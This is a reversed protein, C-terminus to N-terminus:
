GGTDDTLKRTAKALVAFGDGIMDVGYRPASAAKHSSHRSRGTGRVKRGNLVSNPCTSIQRGNLGPVFVASLLNNSDEMM